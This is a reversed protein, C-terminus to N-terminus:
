PDEALIWITIRPESGYRKSLRLDDVQADDHWFGLKTLCDLILKASNDVDPIVTHRLTFAPDSLKDAHQQAQLMTLPYIIQIQCSLPGEYPTIPYKPRTFVGRDNILLDRTIRKAEARVMALTFIKRRKFSVGKHQATVTSPTGPILLVTRGWSFAVDGVPPDNIFGAM